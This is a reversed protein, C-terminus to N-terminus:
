PRGDLLFNGEAKHHLVVELTERIDRVAARQDDSWSGLETWGIM